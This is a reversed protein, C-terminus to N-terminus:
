RRPTLSLATFMQAGPIGFKSYSPFNLILITTSASTATPSLGAISRKSVYRVSEGFRDYAAQHSYTGEPGLFAVTRKEGNM